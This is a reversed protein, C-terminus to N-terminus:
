ELADCSPPAAANKAAFKKGPAFTPDGGFSMCYEHSGLDLVVGVPRPDSALTHGLQGGAGRVILRHGPKVIIHTIPGPPWTFKWGKSANRKKLLQWGQKPLEYTTDFGGATSV